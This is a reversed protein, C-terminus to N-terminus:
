KFTTILHSDMDLRLRAPAISTTQWAQNVRETCTEYFARLKSDYGTEEAQTLAKSHVRRLYLFEPVEAVRHGVRRARTLFEADGFCWWPQFGGMSEWVCRRIAFQGASGQRRKGGPSTVRGHSLRAQRPSLNEDTYISWTRCIPPPQRYSFLQVQRILYGPLMVDDADFRFLLDGKSYQALTNFVRYPGVHKKFWFVKMGPGAIPTMASLTERCNDIGVLVEMKVGPPLAQRLISAICDRIWHQATRAAVIVTVYGSSVLGVSFFESSVRDRILHNALNDVCFRANLRSISHNLATATV